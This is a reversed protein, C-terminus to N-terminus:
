KVLKFKLQNETKEVRQGSGNQMLTSKWIECPQSHAWQCPFCRVVLESPVRYMRVGMLSFSKCPFTKIEKGECFFPLIMLKNERIGLCYAWFFGFLIDICTGLLSTVRCVSEACCRRKSCLKFWHTKRHFETLESLILCIENLLLIQTRM